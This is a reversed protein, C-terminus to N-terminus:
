ILWLNFIGFIVIELSFLSHMYYYIFLKQLWVKEWMMESKFCGLFDVFGDLAIKLNSSPM